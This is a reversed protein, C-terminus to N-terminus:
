TNTVNELEFILIFISSIFLRKLLFYIRIEYHKGTGLETPDNTGRNPVEPPEEWQDDRVLRTTM